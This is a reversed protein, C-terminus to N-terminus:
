CATAVCRASPTARKWHRSSATGLHIADGLTKMTLAHQELGPLGYFNTISGLAVVLHDYRLEHTHCDRVM